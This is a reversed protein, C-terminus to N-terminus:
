EKNFIEQLLKAKIYEMINKRQFFLVLMALLLVGSIIFFGYAYNGLLSGIILGIGVFLFSFFCVLVALSLLAYIAISIVKVTNESIEIKLLEVRKKIYDKFLGLM